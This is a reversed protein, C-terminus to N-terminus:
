GNIKPPKKMTKNEGLDRLCRAGILTIRAPISTISESSSVAQPPPPVVVPPVVELAKGHLLTDLVLAGVGVGIGDTGERLAGVSRIVRSVKVTPLSV